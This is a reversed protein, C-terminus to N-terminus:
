ESTTVECSHLHGGDCLILGLQVFVFLERGGVGRCVCVCRVCHNLGDEYLIRQERCFTLHTCALQGGALKDWLEHCLILCEPNILTNICPFTRQEFPSLNFLFLLLGSAEM